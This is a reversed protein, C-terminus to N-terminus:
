RKRQWATQQLPCCIAGQRRDQLQGPVRCQLRSRGAEQDGLVPLREHLGFTTCIGLIHKGQGMNGRVLHIFHRCDFAMRTVCSPCSHM